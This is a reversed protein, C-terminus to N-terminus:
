AAQKDLFWGLQGSVRIGLSHRGHPTPRFASTASGRHGFWLFLRKAGKRGAASEDRPSRKIEHGVVGNVLLEQAARESKRALTDSEGRGIGVDARDDDIRLPDDHTRSCVSVISYFVGFYEGKFMGAASGTAACEVDIEFRVRM